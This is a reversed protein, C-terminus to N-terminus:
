DNAGTRTQWLYKFSNSVPLFLTEKQQRPVKLRPKARPSPRPVIKLTEIERQLHAVSSHQQLLNIRRHSGAVTKTVELSRRVEVEVNNHIRRPPAANSDVVAIGRTLRPRRAKTMGQQAAAAEELADCLRTALNCVEQRLVGVERRLESNDGRVMAAEARTRLLAEELLEKKRRADAAQASKLKLARSLSENERLLEDIPDCFPYPYCCAPDTDPSTRFAQESSAKEQATRLADEVIEQLIGNAMDFNTGDDNGCKCNLYSTLDRVTGTTDIVVVDSSMGM